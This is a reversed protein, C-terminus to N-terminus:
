PQYYEDSYYEQNSHQTPLKHIDVRNDRYYSGSPDYNNNTSKLAPKYAYNQDFDYICEKQYNNKYYGQNNYQDSNNYQNNYVLDNFNSKSNKANKNFDTYQYDPKYYQQRHNDHQNPTLNYGTVCPYFQQADMNNQNYQNKSDRENVKTENYSLGQYCFNNKKVDFQDNPMGNQHSDKSNKNFQKSRPIHKKKNPFVSNKQSNKEEDKEIAIKDLAINEDDLILSRLYQFNEPNFDQTGNAVLKIHKKFDPIFKNIM